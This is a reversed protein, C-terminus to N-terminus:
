HYQHARGPFAGRSVEAAYRRLATTASAGLKAYTKVFKPAPGGGMGLLDHIVLIQGDCRPGAGIGITPVPIAATITGALSSPIGELVVSFAGADSVARADEMLRRAEDDTRGQVRYGGMANVRQPLLGIHAMVPIGETVMREILAARHAGGELKVADMGGEKLFRGAAVVAEDATGQYSLFPMDGVRFARPAGRSVAAAHHLMQELTVPLTSSYGLSTMALSDGVLVLPIGAEEAWRATTTDYATVCAFRGGKLSRIHRVTWKSPTSM